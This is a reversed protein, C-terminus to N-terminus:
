GLSYGTEKKIDIIDDLYIGELIYKTLYKSFKDAGTKNLHSYDYFDTATSLGIEEVESNFDIFRIGKEDAYETTTVLMNYDWYKAVPTKFLILKINNENCLDVIKDLYEKAKSDEEWLIYDGYNNWYHLFKVETASDGGTSMYGKNPNTKDKFMYTFDEITLESIRGHYRLIPFMYSLIDEDEGITAKIAEEKNESPRMYDLAMRNRAEDNPNSNFIMFTDLLVVKPSQTKLAEKLYYYSIWTKQVGTSLEYGSIYGYEDIVAPKIGHFVHSSGLILYDISNDSLAYFGDMIESVPEWKEDNTWKPIFVSNIYVFGLILISIGFILCILSKLFNKFM